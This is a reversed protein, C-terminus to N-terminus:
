KTIIDELQQLQIEAMHWQIEAFIACFALFGVIICLFLLQSRSWTRSWTRFKNLM